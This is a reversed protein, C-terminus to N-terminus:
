CAEARQASTSATARSRRPSANTEAKCLLALHFSTLVTHHIQKATWGGVQTGGHLLTELLRILRPNHIKIGPYRVTGVTVPPPLRQLLPFDSHVNPGTPQFAA